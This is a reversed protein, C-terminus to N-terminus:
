SDEAEQKQRVHAGKRIEALREKGRDTLIYFPCGEDSWGTQVLGHRRMWLIKLDATYCSSGMQDALYKSFWIANASDWIQNAEDWYWPGSGELVQEVSELIVAAWQKRRIM